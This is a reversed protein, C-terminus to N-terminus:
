KIPFIKFICRTVKKQTHMCYQSIRAARRIYTIEKDTKENLKFYVIAMTHTHARRQKKIYM